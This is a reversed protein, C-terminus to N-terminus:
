EKEGSGVFRDDDDRFLLNFTTLSGYCGTIYQQLGVREDDTLKPHTNIKQELVRLRDRLMVIKKFFNDLPVRREQTGERGPKLILEGGRFRDAIPAESLSLEETLVERLVKRFTDEDMDVEIDIPARRPAEPQTDGSRRTAVRAAPKKLGRAALSGAKTYLPCSSTEPRVPPYQGAGCDGVTVGKAPDLRTSHFYACTGCRGDLPDTVARSVVM